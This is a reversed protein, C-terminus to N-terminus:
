RPLVRAAHSRSKQQKKRPWAAESPREKAAREEEVSESFRLAEADAKVDSESIPIGNRYGSVM